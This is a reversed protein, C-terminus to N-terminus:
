MMLYKCMNYMIYMVNTLKYFERQKDMLIDTVTWLYPLTCLCVMVILIPFIMCNYNTDKYMRDTIDPTHTDGLQFEVQSYLFTCPVSM